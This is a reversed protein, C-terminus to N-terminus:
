AMYIYIVYHITKKLLYRYFDHTKNKDIWAYKNICMIGLLEICSVPHSSEKYFSLSMTVSEYLSNTKTTTGLSSCAGSTSFHPLQPLTVWVCCPEMYAVSFCKFALRVNVRNSEPAQVPM